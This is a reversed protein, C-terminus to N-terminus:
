PHPQDPRPKAKTATANPGFRIHRNAYGAFQNGWVGRVLAWDATVTILMGAIGWIFTRKLLPGNTRLSANVSLKVQPGILVLVSVVIATLHIVGETVLRQPAFGPLAREFNGIVMWWLFALFLLQGKGLASEPILPLPRRQHRLLLGFIAAALAVYGVNFWTEPPWGYLLDPMAKASLWTGPNKRLNVYSIVLLVFASAYVATWRRPAEKPAISPVRLSLLLVALGVGLGNIFGYTQELVSHWNTQWGSKIEMLKLLTATAFGFGGIFGTLM